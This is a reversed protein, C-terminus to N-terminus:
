RHQLHRQKRLHGLTRPATQVQTMLSKLVREANAAM